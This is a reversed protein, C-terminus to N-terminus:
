TCKGESVLLQETQQVPDPRPGPPHEVGPEQHRFAVDVELEARGGGVVRGPVTVEVVESNIGQPVLQHFEIVRGRSCTSLEYVVKM